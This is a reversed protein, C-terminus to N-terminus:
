TWTTTEERLDKIKRNWTISVKDFIYWQRREFCDVKSKVAQERVDFDLSRSWSAVNNIGDRRRLTEM